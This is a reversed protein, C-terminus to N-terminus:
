KLVREILAKQSKSLIGQKLLGQYTARGKDKQGTIFYISMLNVQAVQGYKQHSTLSAFLTKSTNYDGTKFAINALYYDAVKSLSDNAPRPTLLAKAEEFHNTEFREIARDISNMDEEEGRTGQSTPKQYLNEIIQQNSINGFEKNLFYTAVVVVAISAAASVYKWMPMIKRIDKEPRKSGEIKEIQQRVEDEILSASLNKILPYNEVAHALKKDVVMAAEFSSKDEPSLKNDMYDDIYDFYDTM